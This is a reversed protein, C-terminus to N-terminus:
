TKLNLNLNKFKLVKYILWFYPCEYLMSVSVEWIHMIQYIELGGSILPLIGIITILGVCIMKSGLQLSETFHLLQNQETGM